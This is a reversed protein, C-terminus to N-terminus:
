TAEQEAAPAQPYGDHIVGDLERGKAIIERQNRGSWQKLLFPVGAHACQDRLSRVWDPNTARYDTGSEGGTIIWSPMIGPPIQGLDELLPEASWFTIRAPLAALAEGRRLMEERNETSVGMWANAPWNEMLDPYLKAINQPRKTLLLFDLNQYARIDSVLDRRWSPEISRHNDGIDALSACFVRYRIGHEAAKRNWKRLNPRTKTRTRTAHAGWRSAKQQMGRRDWAEAYCHDCAPSVMTCGIWPNYTHDAWQIKTNEAM